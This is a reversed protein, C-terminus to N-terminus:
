CHTHIIGGPVPAVIIHLCGKPNLKNATTAQALLYGAWAGCALAGAPAKRALAGCMSVSAAYDKISATEYRSLTMGWAFSRWGWTPDAVVPYATTADPTVIQVLEDGRVEYHTAVPQGNADVAWAAEVPVFPGESSTSIFTANGADDIVPRFGKMAYGFEHTSTRDAIVTQIRTDGNELTQVAVAGQSGTGAAQENYVVTGDSTLEGEELDMGSPLSISATLDRGDVTTTVDIDQSADLPIQAETSGTSTTVIQGDLSAATPEAGDPAMAVVHAAIDEATGLTDGEQASAATVGTAVLAGALLLSCTGLPTKKISKWGSFPM